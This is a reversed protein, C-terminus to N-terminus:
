TGPRRYSLMELSGVGEAVNDHLYEGAYESYGYQCCTGRHFGPWTQAHSALPGVLCAQYSRARMVRM